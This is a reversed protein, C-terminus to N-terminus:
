SASRETWAAEEPITHDPSQSPVDSPVPEDAPLRVTVHTGVRRRRGIEVSAGMQAARERISDLGVGGGAVGDVDFGRGNDAIVMETTDAHQSIRVVVSTAGAHKLANNLAEQAIFYFAEEAPRVLEIKGTVLMRANLGARREVADLRRQITKVLGFDSVLSPRMQSVLLRMERLSRQSTEALTELYENVQGHNGLSSARRAAEAVLTLSYVSQTVSDHLDFALRERETAASAERRMRALWLQGDVRALLDAITFPEAVYDDAGARMGRTRTEDDVQASMLIVSVSRLRADGRIAALLEFGDLGPMVVDILILDPKWSRALELAAQGDVATEVLGRGSLLRAIYARLDNGSVVVLLRAMPGSSAVNPSVPRALDAAQVPKGAAVGDGVATEPVREPMRPQWREIQEALATSANARPRDVPPGIQDDSLHARGRPIAVTFTSGQGWMSTVSATGGHLQALGQVLSLGVGSGDETRARAGRVRHFPQFLRPLENEPIGIGTDRVGLVVHDGQRDMTVVIEGSFTFKLANSVLNLVIQEWQERDVYVPEPLPPCRVVYRLGAQEVTTRFTSALEVTFAALDTPTYVPRVHGSDLRSLDLLANVLKLLRMGNRHAITLMERARPALTEPPSTLLDQLPALLLTLPTRFEQSVTNFFTTRARELADLDKARREDTVEQLVVMGAISEADEIPLAHGAYTRGGHVLEFAVSWGALAAQYRPAMVAAVDAPFAEALTKGEASAGDLGLRALEEGDAFLHRRDPDFLLVASKPLNRVVTRYREESRELRFLAARREQVLAALCFLPIGIALLFLQLTLLNAATSSAVFPGLGHAVGPIAFVAVACLASAIGRPGFRVAAWVLVPVLLFFLAPAIEPDAARIGFTVASTVAITGCLAPAEYTRWRSRSQPARAPTRVWLLITPALLLNALVDGLFWAQWTLWYPRGTTLLSAAGLTAGLASAVSVCVAYLSVQRLTDFRPPVPMYQRILLAGVLPEVVNAGHGILTPGPRYGMWLFLTVQFIYAELLFVWWRRAPTLLLVALVIAEPPYLPEPLNNSFPTPVLAAGFLYCASLVLGVLLWFSPWLM